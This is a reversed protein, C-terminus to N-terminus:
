CRRTVPSLDLTTYGALGEAKLIESSYASYPKADSAILLIPPRPM